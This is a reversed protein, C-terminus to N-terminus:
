EITSEHVVDLMETIDFGIVLPWKPVIKDIRIV